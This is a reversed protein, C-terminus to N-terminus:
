AWAALRCAGAFLWWRWRDLDPSPVSRQVRAPRYPQGAADWAPEPATRVPLGTRSKTETKGPCIRPVLCEMNIDSSCIDAFIFNAAAAIATKTTGVCWEAAASRRTLDGCCHVSLTIYPATALFDGLRATDRSRIERAASSGM